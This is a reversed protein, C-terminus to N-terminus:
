RFLLLIIAISFFVYSFHQRSLIEKKLANRFSSHTALVKTTHRCGFPFLSLRFAASVLLSEDVFENESIIHAQVRESDPDSLYVFDDQLTRGLHTRVSPKAQFLLPTTESGRRWFSLQRHCVISLRFQRCHHPLESVTRLLRVLESGRM